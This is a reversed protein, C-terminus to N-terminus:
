NLIHIMGTMASHISCNYFLTDPADRPVAFTLDGMTVGNGTVGNSYANATGTGQVTNIYFPHGAAKVSFVYTSGRCLDLMPNNAGDIVYATAGSSSVQLTGAARCSAGTSGGMGMMMGGTGPGGGMGMMSGGMGMMMGGAGAMGGSGMTMGGAGMMLGGTGVM